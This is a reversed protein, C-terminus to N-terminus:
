GSDNDEGFQYDSMKMNKVRDLIDQINNLAKERGFVEIRKTIEKVCAVPMEEVIKFLELDNDIIKMLVEREMIKIEKIKDFRGPRIIADDLDSIRNATALFVITSDENMKELSDLVETTTQEYCRDIDDFVICNPKLFAIVDLINKSNIQDLEPFKVSRGGLNSCIGRVLNTKGTGPPGYYLISRGYGKKQFEKIEDSEENCLRFSFFNGQIDNEIKISSTREDYRVSLQKINIWALERLAALGQEETYKTSIYLREGMVLSGFAPTIEIGFDVGGVNIVKCIVDETDKLIKGKRNKILEFFNDRLMRNYFMEWEPERFFPATKEQTEGQQIEKYCKALSFALRVYHFINRESRIPLYGFQSFIKEGIDIYKSYKDLLPSNLLDKANLASLAPLGRIGLPKSMKFREKINLKKLLSKQKNNLDKWPFYKPQPPKLKKWDSGVKKNPPSIM